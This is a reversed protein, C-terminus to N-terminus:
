QVWEVRWTNMTYSICLWKYIIFKVADEQWTLALPPSICNKKQLLVEPIRKLLIASKDGDWIETVEQIPLDMVQAVVTSDGQVTWWPTKM